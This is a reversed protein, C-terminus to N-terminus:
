CPFLKSVLRTHCVLATVHIFTFTPIAIAVEKVFEEYLKEEYDQRRQVLINIAVSKTCHKIIGKHIVGYGDHAIPTPDLIINSESYCDISGEQISKDLWM